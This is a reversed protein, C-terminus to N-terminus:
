WENYGENREGDFNSKGMEIEDNWREQNLWTSAHPIYQPDKNKWEYNVIDSLAKMIIQFAKEPNESENIKQVFKKKSIGKSKKRPYLDWFEDFKYKLIFEGEYKKKQSKSMSDVMEEVALDFEEALSTESFQDRDKMPYLRQLKLRLIGVETKSLM